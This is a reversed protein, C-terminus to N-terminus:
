ILVIYVVRLGVKVKEYSKRYADSESLFKIKGFIGFTMKTQGGGVYLANERNDHTANNKTYRSKVLM